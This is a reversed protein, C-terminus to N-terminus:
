NEKITLLLLEMTLEFNVNAKLRAKAKEIADLINEIGEYSSKSARQKIYRLQDSFVVRDVNKTAKYILVDRYWIAIMDLYDNIEMKYTMCKKIADMLESVNMENINRLLHVVEEKIENFYESTALMIAKGMNGQAFAVCVDAKYDPIEMQEMLYKKVLQDRINRLKMMVCRSRITPLLTEANETLLMIVAYEPPEEITKLLANQAQVSMLDAEPIIYIKYKSSYPKIVIDNNVQTRIDDVSITNPKEHIVRIIDPQNGSKAQKCSQCKGCAEGNEARDQCQLSMAFLNALLKKGSGREGNLIYAHSVADAQVASEIYKIINKHGVVDKFSSM